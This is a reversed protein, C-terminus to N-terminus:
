VPHTSRSSSGCRRSRATCRPGIHPEMGIMVGARQAYLALEGFCDVLMGKVQEWDDPDGGSTTSITLREGPRQLEAALDLYGGLRAMNKAHEDADSVLLPM